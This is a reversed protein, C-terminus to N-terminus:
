NANNATVVSVASPTAIGQITQATGSGNGTSGTNGSSQGSGGGTSLGGGGTNGSTSSADGCGALVGVVVAMYIVGSVKSWM